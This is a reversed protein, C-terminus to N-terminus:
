HFIKWPFFLYNKFFWKKLNLCFDLHSEFSLPFIIGVNKPHWTVGEWCKQKLHEKDSFNKLLNLHWKSNFVIWFFSYFPIICASQWRYCGLIRFKPINYYIFIITQQISTHNNTHLQTSNSHWKFKKNSNNKVWIPTQIKNLFMELLFCKLLLTSLSYCSVGFINSYNQWPTKFTM